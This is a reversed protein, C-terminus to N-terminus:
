GARLKNFEPFMDPNLPEVILTGLNFLDLQNGAIM